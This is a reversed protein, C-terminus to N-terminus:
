YTHVGPFNGFDDYIPPSSWGTPNTKNQEMLYVTQALTGSQSGTVTFRLTAATITAGALDSVDFDCLLEKVYGAGRYFQGLDPNTSNTTGTFNNNWLNYVTATKTTTAM